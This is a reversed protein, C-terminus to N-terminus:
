RGKAHGDAPPTWNKLHKKFSKELHKKITKVDKFRDGFVSLMYGGAIQEPCAFM